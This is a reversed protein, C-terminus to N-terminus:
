TSPACSMGPAPDTGLALVGETNDKNLMFNVLLNQFSFTRDCPQNMVSFEEKGDPDSRV